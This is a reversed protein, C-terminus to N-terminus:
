SRRRVPSATTSSSSSWSSRSGRLDASFHSSCRRWEAKASGLSSSTAGWVHPARPLPRGRVPCLFYEIAGPTPPPAPAALTYTHREGDRDRRVREELDAREDRAERPREALKRGEMRSHGRRHRGVVRYTGLDAREQPVTAELRRATALRSG